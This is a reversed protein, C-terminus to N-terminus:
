GLDLSVLDYNSGALLFELGLDASDDSAGLVLGIRGFRFLSDDDNTTTRTTTM